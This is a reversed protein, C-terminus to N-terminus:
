DVRVTGAASVSVWREAADSSVRLPNFNLSLEIPRGRTDFSLSFAETDTPNIAVGPYLTHLDVWEGVILTASQFAPTTVSPWPTGTSDRAMLRYQNRREGSAGDCVGSLRYQWGTGVARSRAYRVDNALRGAAATLRAKRFTEVLSPATALVLVSFVLMAILTEIVSFGGQNRPCAM